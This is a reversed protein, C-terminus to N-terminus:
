MCMFVCVDGASAGTGMGKSVGGGL